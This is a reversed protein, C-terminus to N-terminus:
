VAPPPPPQVLSQPLLPSVLLQSGLQLLQQTLGINISMEPFPKSSVSKVDPTINSRLLLPTGCLTEHVAGPESSANRARSRLLLPVMSSPVSNNPLLVGCGKEAVGLPKRARASYSLDSFPPLPSPLISLLSLIKGSSRRHCSAFWLPTDSAFSSCGKVSSPM